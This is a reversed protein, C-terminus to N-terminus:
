QVVAISVRSASDGRTNSNALFLDLQFEAGNFVVGGGTDTNLFPIVRNLTPPVGSGSLISYETVGLEFPLAETFQVRYVGTGTRTIASINFSNVLTAVGNTTRPIFTAFAKIPIMPYQLGSALADRKYFPYTTSIAPMGTSTNVSFASGEGAPPNPIPVPGNPLAILTVQKHKGREAPLTANFEYHDEGFITNAQDFNTTILNYTADIRTNIAPITPNYTM